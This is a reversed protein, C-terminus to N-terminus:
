YVETLNGAGQGGPGDTEDERGTDTAKLIAICLALAPTTASPGLVVECWDDDVPTWRSWDPKIVYARYMTRDPDTHFWPQVACYWGPLVREAWAVAGDISTTYAPLWRLADRDIVDPPAGCPMSAWNACKDWEAKDILKAIERDLERSGAEAEELRKILDTM